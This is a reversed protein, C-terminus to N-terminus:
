FSNFLVTRMADPAIAARDIQWRRGLSGTVSDLKEISRHLVCKLVEVQSQVLATLSMRAGQYGQVGLLFASLDAIAGEPRGLDYILLRMKCGVINCCGEALYM